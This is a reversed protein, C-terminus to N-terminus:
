GHAPAKSLWEFTVGAAELAKVQRSSLGFVNGPASVWGEGTTLLAEIARERQQREPIRILHISDVLPGNALEERNRGRASPKGGPKATQQNM